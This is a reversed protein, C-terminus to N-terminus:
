LRSISNLEINFKNISIWSSILKDISKNSLYSSYIHHFSFSYRSYKSTSFNIQGCSHYAHRIVIARVTAYKTSLVAGTSRSESPLETSSANIVTKPNVTTLVLSTHITVEVIGTLTLRAVSTWVTQGTRWPESTLETLYLQIAIM